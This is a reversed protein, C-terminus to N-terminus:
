EEYLLYKRRMVKYETLAPEWSARIEDVTKKTKIQKQLERTGALNDFFPIFFQDKIKNKAYMDIWLQVDLMEKEAIRIDNRLDIGFCEVGKHKPNVSAGKISQPTFSFLGDISPSGVVQFPFHTGRGVSVDTGEFLCLTPYLYVSQMNPLNPSPKVPLVYKVKHTYNECAIVTLDCRNGNLWGEGNIMLALEGVTLGHVIPICHIGVFSSLSSDLVPGDVYYGNPNPRDLVIFPIRREACALMAYHMTSIYTYFRAGVDQIDFVMIDIGVLMESSPKKNKGYLSFIPLGTKVDKNNGVLEGADATGRFGHEPSYIAQVDVGLLLLSDVLHTHNIVSTHNAIIGVHKNKLLHLYDDVCEAGVRVQSYVKSANLLIFIFLVLNKLINSNFQLM